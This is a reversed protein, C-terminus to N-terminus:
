KELEVIEFDKGVGFQVLEALEFKELSALNKVLFNTDSIRRLVTFITKEGYNVLQYNKGIRINQFIPNM